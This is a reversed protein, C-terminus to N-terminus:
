IQSSLHSGFCVVKRTMEGGVVIGASERTQVRRFSSLLSHFSSMIRCIKRGSSTLAM